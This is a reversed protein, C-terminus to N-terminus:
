DCQELVGQCFSNPGEATIVEMGAVILEQLVLGAERYDRCAALPTVREVFVESCM